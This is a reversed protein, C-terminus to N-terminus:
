GMLKNFNTAYFREKTSENIGVMSEEFRKLPIAAVKSIRITPHFSSCSPAVQEIIWAVPETPHPTFKLQRRVYDSAKMPLALGRETRAFAQQAVDLRRLWPPVWLAGLEIIGGAPAPSSWRGTSCWRM